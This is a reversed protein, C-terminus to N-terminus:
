VDIMDTSNMLCTHSMFMTGTKKIKPIYVGISRIHVGNLHISPTSRAHPGNLTRIDKTSKNIAPFYHIAKLRPYPGNKPSVKDTEKWFVCVCM